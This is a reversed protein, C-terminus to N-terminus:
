RGSGLSGEIPLIAVYTKRRLLDLMRRYGREQALQARIQDRVEAMTLEGAEIADTVRAVVFKPVGRSRDEIEFPGVFEGDDKGEFAKAYSEPLSDHPFPQLVGDVEDRDHYRNVLTDFPTGAQWQALASDARARARRVDASDYAPRILIHRAKVESPRVRDVRIIHFGYQTEVVPSVQGPALSFLVRDFEPVMMDRRTWGLDGGQDKTAPDMSERRAVQEFDSGGRIEVLLSEAKARARAKASDSAVAHIVIQRFTLSPPRRPLRDKTREYAATVEEESVAIPVMKGEAQLKQVFRRQLERRRAQETLWRRYDDMSGFGSQRLTSLLQQENPIQQRIRRLQDDVTQTLDADAVVISTDAQAQQVLIEEEVLENVLQRAYEMQGASDRPIPAGQAQRQQVIEVVESFLIPETGVIAVIRDVPYNQLVPADQARLSGAGLVVISALLIRQM